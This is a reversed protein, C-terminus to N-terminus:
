LKDIRKAFYVMPVNSLISGFAKVTDGIHINGKINADDFRITCPQRYMFVIPIMLENIHEDADIEIYNEAVNEVKGKVYNM